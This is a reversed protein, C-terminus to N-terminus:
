GVRIRASAVDAFSGGPPKVSLVARYTGNALDQGSVLFSTILTAREKEIPSIRVNDRFWTLRLRSRPVPEVKFLFNAQIGKTRSIRTVATSRGPLSMWTREIVGRLPPATTTRGTCSKPLALSPKWSSRGFFCFSQTDVVTGSFGGRPKLLLVSSATTKSGDDQDIWLVARAGSHRHRVIMGSRSGPDEVAFWAGNWNTIRCGGGCYGSSTHSLANGRRNPYLVLRYKGFPYLRPIYPRFDHDFPTSGFVFQRRVTFENSGLNKPFTYETSVPIGSTGYCGGSASSAIDVKGSESANWTGTSGWGVPSVFGAGGATGWSDGFFELEGGGFPCGSVVATNTLNASGLWRLGVIEEPDTLSWQVAFAGAILTRTAPFVLAGVTASAAVASAGVIIAAALVLATPREAGSRRLRLRERWAAM